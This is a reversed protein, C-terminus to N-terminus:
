AASSYNHRARRQDFVAPVSAQRQCAEEPGGAESLIRSHNDSSRRIDHDQYGGGAAELRALLGTSAVVREGAPDLRQRRPFQIPLQHLM